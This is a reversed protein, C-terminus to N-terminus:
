KKRFSAMSKAIAAMGAEGLIDEADNFQISESQRVVRRAAGDPVPKKEEQGKQEELIRRVVDEILATDVSAAQPIDPTEPCHLYHMVANVLFQAKRRGQRNLIDATQKHNPDSLSFQVTFKGPDKKQAM